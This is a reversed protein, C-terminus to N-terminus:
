KLLLYTTQVHRMKIDDIKYAQWEEQEKSRQPRRLELKKIM